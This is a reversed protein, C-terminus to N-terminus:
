SYDEFCLGEQIKDYMDKLTPLNLYDKDYIDRETHLEDLVEM